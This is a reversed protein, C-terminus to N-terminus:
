KRLADVTNRLDEPRLHGYVAEVMATTDGLLKAVFHLSEGAALLRTAVTHRAVHRAVGREDIGVAVCCAKIAHYTTSCIGNRGLGIVHDDTRTEYAEELKPLLFASIPPTSRRKNKYKVGPVRYDIVGRKLDCRDWTLEEIARARAGTELALLLFLQCRRSKPLALLRESEDVTLFRVRCPGPEPKWINFERKTREERKAHNLASVLFTLERRVTAPQIDKATRWETYRRGDSREFTEIHKEPGFFQLLTRAVYGFRMLRIRDAGEAVMKERAYDSMARELTLGAPPTWLDFHIGALFTQPKRPILAAETM